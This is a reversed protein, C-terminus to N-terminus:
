LLFRPWHFDNQLSYLHNILILCGLWGIECNQKCLWRIAEGGPVTGGEGCSMDAGSGKAKAIIAFPSNYVPNKIERNEVDLRKLVTECLLRKQDFNGNGWITAFEICYRRM